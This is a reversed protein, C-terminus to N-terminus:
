NTFSRIQEKSPNEALIGWEWSLIRNGCNGGCTTDQEAIEWAEDETKGEDIAEQYAENVEDDCLLGPANEAIWDISEDLADQLHDAYVMLRTEGYAGFHLIFRSDTWSKDCPNVIEIPHPTNTKM